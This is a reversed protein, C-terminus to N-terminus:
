AAPSSGVSTPRRYICRGCKASSVLFKSTESITPTADVIRMGEVLEGSVHRSSFASLVIFVVVLKSLEINLFFEGSNQHVSTTGTAMMTTPM